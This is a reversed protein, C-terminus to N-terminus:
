PHTPTKTSSKCFDPLRENLVAMVWLSFFNHFAPSGSSRAGVEDSRKKPTLSSAWHLVGWSSQEDMLLRVGSVSVLWERLDSRILPYNLPIPSLTVLEATQVNHYDTKAPDTTLISSQSSFLHDWFLLGELGKRGFRKVSPNLVRSIVLSGFLGFEFNLPHVFRARLMFYWVSGLLNSLKQVM